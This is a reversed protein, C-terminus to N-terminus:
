VAIALGARNLGPSTTPLRLRLGLGKNNQVVILPLSTDVHGILHGNGVGDTPSTHLPILGEEAMQDVGRHHVREENVLGETSLQVM